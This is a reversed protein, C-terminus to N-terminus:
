PNQITPERPTTHISRVAPNTAPSAPRRNANEEVKFIADELAFLEDIIDSVSLKPTVAHLEAALASRAREYLARRTEVSDKALRAVARSLVPVYDAM